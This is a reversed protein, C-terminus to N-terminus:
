YQRFNCVKKDFVCLNCVKILGVGLGVVVFGLGLLGCLLGVYDWVVGYIGVTEGKERRGKCEACYGVQLHFYSVTRIKKVNLDSMKIRIDSYPLKVNM